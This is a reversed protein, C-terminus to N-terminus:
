SNINPVTKTNQNPYETVWDECFDCQKLIVIDKSKIELKGFRCHPCVDESQIPINFHINM